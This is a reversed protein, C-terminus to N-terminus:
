REPVFKRLSEPLASTDIRGDNKLLKEFEAKEDLTKEMLEKVNLAYGSNMLDIVFHPSYECHLRCYHMMASLLRQMRQGENEVEEGSYIAFEELAKRFAFARNANTIM